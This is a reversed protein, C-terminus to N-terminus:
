IYEELQNFLMFYALNAHYVYVCAFTNSVHRLVLPTAFHGQVHVCQCPSPSQRARSYQRLKCALTDPVPRLVDPAPLLLPLPLPMPMCTCYPQEGIRLTCAHACVYKNYLVLHTHQMWFRVHVCARAPTNVKWSYFARMCSVCALEYKEIAFTYTKCNVGSVCVNCYRHLYLAVHVAVYLVVVLHKRISTHICSCV